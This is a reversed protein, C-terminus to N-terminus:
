LCRKFRGAWLAAVEPPLVSTSGFGGSFAHKGSSSFAQHGVRLILRIMDNSVRQPTDQSESALEARLAGM